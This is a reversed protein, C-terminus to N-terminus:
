NLRKIRFNRYEVKMPPGVHVQVGLRGDFRRNVTDRDTADSMLAGNVYHQLHNGRAIIHYENWNGNNINAKLSDVNGLSGVVNRATWQNNQIYTELSDTEPMPPLIVKEGIAALTTRRREEYNMGTYRNQGDLDAQYGRLAYPVGEVRESRYNIGSNGDASIRYEVKLEFDSPMDGQWIIFSNRDLLTSPTVEGVLAGDEVRWYTPDGEWGDLTKGNFIKKFGDEAPTAEDPEGCGVVAILLITWLFCHAFMNHAFKSIEENIRTYM